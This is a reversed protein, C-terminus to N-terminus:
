RGAAPQQSPNLPLIQVFGTDCSRDSFTVKGQEVCRFTKHPDMLIQDAPAPAAATAPAPSVIDANRPQIPALPTGHWRPMVWRYTLFAVCCVLSVLVFITLLRLSLDLYRDSTPNAEDM